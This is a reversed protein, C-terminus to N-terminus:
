PTTTPKQQEKQYLEREARLTNSMAQADKLRQIDIQVRDIRRGAKLYEASATIDTYLAIEELAGDMVFKRFMAPNSRYSKGSEGTIGLREQLEDLTYTVEKHTKDQLEARLVEYLRISYKSKMPLVSLLQYQTYRGQLELLFPMLDDNLKIAVKSSNRSIGAKDIWRLLIEKGDDLRVWFSKDALSKITNKMYNYMNPMSSVDIGCVECYDRITFEYLKLKEDNPKIKSILYLLLRQEELSLEYRTKQILANSKIVFLSREKRVEDERTKGM